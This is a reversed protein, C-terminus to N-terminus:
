GAVTMTGVMGLDIHFSCQFKYAGPTSVTFDITKSTGATLLLISAGIPQPNGSSFNFDHSVDHGTDTVTLAVKGPKVTFTMPTFMYDDGTQLTVHQVGDASTVVQGPRPGSSSAAASSPSSQVGCGGLLLAGVALAV